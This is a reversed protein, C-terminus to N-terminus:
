DQTCVYDQYYAQSSGCSGYPKGHGAYAAHRCTSGATMANCSNDSPGFINEACDEDLRLEPHQFGCGDTEPGTKRKWSYTGDSPPSTTNTACQSGGRQSITTHGFIDNSSGGTSEAGYEMTFVASGITLERSGSCMYNSGTKRENLEYNVGEYNFRATGECTPQSTDVGSGFSTSVTVSGDNDSAVKGPIAIIVTAQPTCNVEPQCVSRAGQCESSGEWVLYSMGSLSTQCIQRQVGSNTACFVYGGFENDNRVVQSIRVGDSGGSSYSYGMSTVCERSAQDVTIGEVTQSSPLACTGGTDCGTTINSTESSAPKTRSNCSSDAVTTGNSRRCTVDRTRTASGCTSSWSSWSGTQWTYTCGTYNAEQITETLPVGADTCISAEVDEGDVQCTGSRTKTANASCTQDYSWPGWRVSPTSSPSVGTCGSYDSVTRITSPKADTCFRDEVDLGDQNQCIVSRLQTESSTCRAPGEDWAGVVWSFSCASGIYDEEVAPPRSTSGCYSDAVQQGNSEAVCISTNRRQVPGCYNLEDVPNGNLDTVTSTTEWRFGQTTTEPNLPLPRRMYVNESEVEQALVVGPMTAAMAVLSAAMIGKLRM